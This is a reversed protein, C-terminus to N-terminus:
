RNGKWNSEAVARRQFERAAGSSAAQKPEVIATGDLHFGKVLVLVSGNRYLYPIGHKRAQRVATEAPNSM